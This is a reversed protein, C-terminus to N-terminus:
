AGGYGGGCYAGGCVDDHAGVFDSVSRVCLDGGGYIYVNKLTASM